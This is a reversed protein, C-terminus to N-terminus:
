AASSCRGTANRLLLCFRRRALLVRLAGWRHHYNNYCEGRERVLNLHALIANVIREYNYLEVIGSVSERWFHCIACIGCQKKELREFIECIKCCFRQTALAFNVCISLLNKPMTYM